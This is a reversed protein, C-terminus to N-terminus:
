CDRRLQRLSEEWERITTSAIDSATEPYEDREEEFRRPREDELTQLVREAV